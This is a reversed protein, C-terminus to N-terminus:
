TSIAVESLVTLKDMLLFIVNMLRARSDPCVLSCVSSRGTLVELFNNRINFICVLSLFVHSSQVVLSSSCEDKVLSAWELIADLLVAAEVWSSFGVTRFLCEWMFENWHLLLFSVTGESDTVQRFVPIISSNSFVVLIKLVGDFIM